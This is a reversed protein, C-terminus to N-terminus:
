ANQREQERALLLKRTNMVETHADATLLARKDALEFLRECPSSKSYRYRAGKRAHARGQGDYVNLRVPKVDRVYIATLEDDVNHSVITLSEADRDALSFTLREPPESSAPVVGERKDFPGGILQVPTEHESTGVREAVIQQVAPILEHGSMM